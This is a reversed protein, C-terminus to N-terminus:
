YSKNITGQEKLKRLPQFVPKKFVFARENEEKDAKQIIRRIELAEYNIEGDKLYM